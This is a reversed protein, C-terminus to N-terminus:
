PVTSRTRMGLSWGLDAWWRFTILKRINLDTRSCICQGYEQVGTTASAPATSTSSSTTLLTSTTTIALSSSTSSTKPSTSSVSTNPPCAISVCEGSAPDDGPQCSYYVTDYSCGYSIEYCNFFDTIFFTCNTV